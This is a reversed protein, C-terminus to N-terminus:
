LTALLPQLAHATLALKHDDLDLLKKAWVLDEDIFPDLDAGVGFGADLALAEAVVVVALLTSKKLQVHHHGAVVLKVETSMQWAEAVAAGIETHIVDLAQALAEANVDEFDRHRDGVAGIAAALGIDHM